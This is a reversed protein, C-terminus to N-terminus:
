AASLHKTLYDRSVQLGELVEARSEEDVCLTVDPGLATIADLVSILDVSGQGLLRFEDDAYDKLHINDIVSAFDTLLAPVDTVGSRLLHGTDVTLRLTNERVAGFFVDFDRRHMVPEGTHHHLSLAVGHEAAEEAHDSLEGAFRILDSDDLGERPVDHCIVVRQAGVAGAFASLTRLRQRGAVDLPNMTILSSVHGPESGWDHRFRDAGAVPDDLYDGYQGGKLQLGAFGYEPYRDFLLRQQEAGRTPKSFAIM